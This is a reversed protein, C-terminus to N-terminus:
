GASERERAFTVGYGIRQVADPHSGFLKQLLRPPQPEALAKIALRKELEIFSEPDETLELCFTDARQEIKRSLRSAAIRAGFSVTGLALMLAPLMAPTPEEDRGAISETLQQALYLGAPAAIGLWALLRMVDRHRVHSLEHAVVSRVEGPPFDNLLTDYLVVRKTHGLGTVYANGATTRRSADVRYVEGVEVGAREALGLVESRLEGEPLPDFKNFVPDLLVPSLLIFVASLATSGAAAPAWWRAPFRRLLGMTGALTAANLGAGIVSSKVVDGFWAPWAQVSIGAKVARRHSAASLPLTLAGFGVSGAAGVAAAGAIPRGGARELARRVAMPPRGVVAVLAAAQLATGALGLARQPRQYARARDIEEGSFYDRAEVPASEILGSRPRLARTAVGAAASAWLVALPVRFRHAGM